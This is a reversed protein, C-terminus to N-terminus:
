VNDDGVREAPLAKEVLVLGTDGGSPQGVTRVTRPAPDHELAVVAFVYATEMESLRVELAHNLRTFTTHRAKETVFCLLALILFLLSSAVYPAVAPPTQLREM